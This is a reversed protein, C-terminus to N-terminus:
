EVNQDEFHVIVAPADLLGGLRVGNTPKVNTCNAPDFILRVEDKQGTELGSVLALIFDSGSRKARDYETNSLEIQSQPGRGTAKMEVFRKWDFAGDSGVGHRARFDVLRQDSATELAQVLIEWGRQELDVNTYAAPATSSGTDNPKSPEPPTKKLQSGGSPKTPPKQPATGERVKAGVVAGVSDKLTRPKLTSTRSAPPTVKIKTKPAANIAAAAERMAADRKEDSALRIAEAATDRSKRWAHEWEVDIRRRVEPPFLSAIARGGFDRDGIDEERLHFARPEQQVLARLSVMMAKLELSDAQVQIAEDYVFLQVAKLQDWSIAIRDRTVPDNRALEASLHDVAHGFRLETQQGREAAAVQDDVVSLRPELTDIMLLDALLPFDRVDCPPSWCKLKSIGASLQKRLEASEVFYVPRDSIWVGSCALPLVKLKERHKREASTVLKEMFRYVDMLATESALDYPSLARDRCFRICDDLDPEAVDLVLWLNAFLAGSPVFQMTGHFIDLGRLVQNPRRWHGGGVYVLGNGALFRGRLEQVTLEGISTSYTAVRPCRKAITRYIPYVQAEEVVGGSDRMEELRALLDGIRVDTILHLAGVLGEHVDDAGVDCAFTEYLTQTEPTKVVALNALELEGRGVAIWPTERLENLWAATVEGRYHTHKIAKHEAPVLLRDAYLRDWYRSLTRLLAPSRQRADRKSLKGFSKLVRSLDPSVDDHRVQDAGLKRLERIRADSGWRIREDLRSLRPAVEAGLLTLFRRPGRSVTGDERKRKAWRGAETKLTLEYRAAIWLVGPTVGAADPWTSNEGDLTKCLYAESLPVKQRVSKGNKYVYGDLVLLSGVAPGLQEARYDSVGDFRDRLDRLEDDTIEIRTGGFREAFAALEIAADLHTTFAANATLWTVVQKGEDSAGFAPHLRDLLKWRAAFASPSAEFVLPRDTEDETNCSVAAHEDSLLFRRGFLEEDAHHGMLRAAATVWWRPGKDTFSETELADLLEDTGIVTSVALTDLVSRWRGAEDRVDNAVARTGAAIQEVDGASLLGALTAAEYSLKAFPTAVESIRLKAHQRLWERSNEFASAFRTRVWRDDEKGIGETALPLLRWSILPSGTTLVAAVDAVVEAARDILWNNWVNEIIAERSTNPDFQADLSFPLDMPVQSKFGIYLAPRAEGDALAISIDTTESRAKHAPHLKGPVSLTARWVTWSDEPGDVRRLRLRLLGEHKQDLSVDEWNGFLLNKDAVRKGTTDCWSFRSVSTLFILGDDEWAEFWERLDEELFEDNLALVLLTDISPDYFGPLPKEPNVWDFRLQDGSFHYPASHIAVSDAIRKLTKLGIGFRGRQDVRETKTTLYPLAMALVNHCTVPEGNHAILLERGGDHDRLAFRVETARVDDANQIVEIIGQFQAVALDEAGAAARNIMKKILGKSSRLIAVSTDIMARAFSPTRPDDIEGAEDDDDWILRAAEAGLEADKAESSATNLDSM